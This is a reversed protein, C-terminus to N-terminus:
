ALSIGTTILRKFTHCKCSKSGVCYGLNQDDKPYMISSPIHDIQLHRCDMCLDIKSM